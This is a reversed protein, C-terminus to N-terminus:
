KNSPIEPALVDIESSVDYDEPNYSIETNSDIIRLSQCLTRESTVILKILCNWLRCGEHICIYEHDARSNYIGIARIDGASINRIYINLITGPTMNPSHKIYLVGDECANYVTSDIEKIEIYSGFDVTNFECVNKSNVTVWKYKEQPSDFDYLKNIINPGKSNLIASAQVKVNYANGEDDFTYGALFVKDLDAGDYLPEFESFKSKSLVVTSCKSIM